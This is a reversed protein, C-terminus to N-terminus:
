ELQEEALDDYVLTNSTIVPSENLGTQCYVNIGTQVEYFRGQETSSGISLRTYGDGDLWTSTASYRESEIWAGRNISYKLSIEVGAPLPTVWTCDVYDAQKEKGVYGNDFILSEWTAFEPLTSSADVVDVGYGGHQDDRWSIHLTDGFNQVMGITLNNSGSYTTSGTSLLYSYGFSNPFNVDVRGYSYVGFPITTNTTVSPWAMLVTGNRVTSAYPYVKTDNNNVNYTNEGGPLTRIKQPEADSFPALAYWAGGAQYYLTNKYCKIGYPAGEPIPIYFNYGTQLGDWFFIIGSQPDETGTIPNECAIAVYENTRAIGCVEYEPPFVLKHRQWESNSPEPTGLPEWVSLYRGNGIVIFQQIVDMPHMGNTTTMLRDAYLEFDCTSLDNTATSYVAGDAVTSTVHIHYTQAAPAVNIVIPVTFTFDNFQNNVLNANTVTSTGLLNNLGDHVVVTWDGTGRSAIRLAIKKIPAIDSQFYRLQTPAGEVYTTSIATTKTGTTQDANVNFGALTSNNYTSKSTGFFSPSLTAVGSVPNIMSVTTQGAMYISDQDSRYVMGYGGAETAGITSWVGTTSRRYIKGADGMAYITGDKTMVENQLLDTVTNADERRTAPLLTLQSPSKRFDLSQSYAFSNAMGVKLDTAIGGTFQQNVLPRKSM